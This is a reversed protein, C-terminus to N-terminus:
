IKRREREREKLLLIECVRRYRDGIECLDFSCIREKVYGDMHMRMLLIVERPLCTHM